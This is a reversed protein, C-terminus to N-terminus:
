DREVIFLNNIEGDDVTYYADYDGGTVVEDIASIEGDDDVYFIKTGSAITYTKGRDNNNQGNWTDVRVETASVRRVGKAFLTEAEDGNSDVYQAYILQDDSNYSTQNLIRDHGGKDKKLGAENKLLSDHGDRQEQNDSIAVKITTIEGKVVANYTYYANEDSRDILNSVSNAAIFTVAKSSNVVTGATIFVVKATDQKDVYVYAKTVGNGNLSVNPANRIGTYTNYSGGENVVFFTKSDYEITGGDSTKPGNKVVKDKITFTKSVATEGSATSLKYENGDIRYRVVKGAAYKSNVGDDKLYDKDLDVTRTTGNAFLLRARNGDWAGVGDNEDLEVPTGDDQLGVGKVELTDDDQGTIRLVLAYADPSFEAEDVWLAYGNSDLYVIYNSRNTMDEQYELGEGFSIMKAFKYTTDGLTMNKDLTYRSLSGEVSEMKYMSVIKQEKDSYTYAVVDDNKYESTVFENHGKDKDYFGHPIKDGGDIVVYADKKASEGKVASVKGGYVSMAAIIVENTLKNHFVEVITGDGIVAWDDKINDAPQQDAKLDSPYSKSLDSLKTSNSRKVQKNTDDLSKDSSPVKDADNGQFGLGNIYLWGNASDNLKLDNYIDTITVSGNYTLAPKEVYTGVSEGKFVWKVAPRGMDDATYGNKNGPAYSQDWKFTGNNRVLRSFYREAFQVIDDNVINGNNDASSQSDWKVSKATNSGGIAIDMGGVNATIRSDYEVLDATLTNFAFLCATQRDVASNGSFTDAVSKTLGVGDAIKAVNISWNAGTFGEIAGDYGLAGLLMKMFAYGTLTGDPVFRGDGYGNIIKNQSCYAIAAAFTHNAPVDPFPAVTATLSSATTPGLIMNTIIKAAAGRTLSDTPKFSGDQYGSVVGIASIVDIAEKYTISDDDTFDAASATGTMTFLSTVMVLALVLSLFKKM